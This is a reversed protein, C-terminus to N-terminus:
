NPRCGMGGDVLNDYLNSDGDIGQPSAQNRREGGKEIRHNGVILDVHHMKVRLGNGKKGDECKDTFGHHANSRGSGEKM